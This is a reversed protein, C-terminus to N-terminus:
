SRTSASTACTTSARCASCACCPPALAMRMKAVPSAAALCGRNPKPPLPPPPSFTPTLPPPPPTTLPWCPRSQQERWCRDESSGRTTPGASCLSCLSGATSGGAGQQCAGWVCGNGGCAWGGLVVASACGHACMFLLWVCERQLRPPSQGCRAPAATRGVHASRRPRLCGTPVAAARRAAAPAAPAPTRGGAWLHPNWEVGTQRWAFGDWQIHTERRRKTGQRRLAARQSANGACCACLPACARM